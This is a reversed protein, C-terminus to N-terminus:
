LQKLKRPLSTPIMRIERQKMDEVVEKVMDRDFVRLYEGRTTLTTDFGMGNM